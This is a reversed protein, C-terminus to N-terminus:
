MLCLQVEANAKMKEPMGYSNLTWREGTSMDEITSNAKGGSMWHERATELAREWTRRTHSGALLDGALMIVKYRM